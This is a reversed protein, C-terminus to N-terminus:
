DHWPQPKHNPKDSSSPLISGARLGYLSPHWLCPILGLCSWLLDVPVRESHIRSCLPPSPFPTRWTPQNIEHLTQQPCLIRLLCNEYMQLVLHCM